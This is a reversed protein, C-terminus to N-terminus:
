LTSRWTDLAAEIEEDTPMKKNLINILLYEMGLAAIYREMYRLNITKMDEVTLNAREKLPVDKVNKGLPFVYRQAHDNTM